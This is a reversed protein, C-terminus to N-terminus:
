MSFKPWILTESLDFLYGWLKMESLVAAHSLFLFM